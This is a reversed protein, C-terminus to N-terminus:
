TRRRERYGRDPSHNYRCRGKRSGCPTLRTARRSCSSRASATAPLSRQFITIGPTRRSGPWSVAPERRPTRRAVTALAWGTGVAVASGYDPLPHRREVRLVWPAVLLPLLVESLQTATLEPMLPAYVRHLSGNVFAAAVVGGWAVAWPRWQRGGGDGAPVTAGSPRRMTDQSQNGDAPSMM